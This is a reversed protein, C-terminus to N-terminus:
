DITVNFNGSIPISGSGVNYVTVGTFSGEIRGGTTTDIWTLTLTGANTSEYTTTGEGYYIYAQPSDITPGVIYDTKTTGKIKITVSRNCGTVASYLYCMTITTPYTATVITGHVSTTVGDETYTIPSAGTKTITVFDASGGGGGGGGGGCSALLAVGAVLMLWKAWGSKRLM